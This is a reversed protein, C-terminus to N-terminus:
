KIVHGLALAGPVSVEPVTVPDVVEFTASLWSIQRALEACAAPNAKPSERLVVSLELMSRLAEARRTPLMHGLADLQARVHPHPIGHSAAIRALTARASKFLYAPERRLDPDATAEYLSLQRWWKMYENPHVEALWIPRGGTVPNRLQSFENADRHHGMAGRLDHELPREGSAECAIGCCNLMEALLAERGVTGNPLDPASYEFDIDSARTVVGSGSSGRLLLTRNPLGPFAFRISHDLAALLDDLLASRAFAADLGDAAALSLIAACLTPVQGGPSPIALVLADFLAHQFRQTPQGAYRAVTNDLSIFLERAECPNDTRLRAIIFTSWVSLHAPFVDDLLHGLELPTMRNSPLDRLPLEASFTARDTTDLMADYGGEEPYECIMSFCQEFGDLAHVSKVPLTQFESMRSLIRSDAWNTGGDMGYMQAWNLRWKLLTSRRLPSFPANLHVDEFDILSIRRAARDVIINRPAFGRWDIGHAHLNEMLAAILAECRASTTEATDQSHLTVGCDPSVLAIREADLPEILPVVVALSFGDLAIGELRAAVCEANRRESWAAECPKVKAIWLQGRFAFQRVPSHPDKIERSRKFRFRDSYDNFVFHLARALTKTHIVEASPKNLECVSRHFM